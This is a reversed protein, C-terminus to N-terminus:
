KTPVGGPTDTNPVLYTTIAQIVLGVLTVQLESSLQWKNQILAILFTGILTAQGALWKNTPRASKQPAPQAPEAAVIPDLPTM